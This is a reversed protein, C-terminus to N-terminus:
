YTASNPVLMGGNNLQLASLFQWTSITIYLSSPQLAQLVCGTAPPRDSSYDSM